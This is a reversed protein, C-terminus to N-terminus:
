IIISTQDHTFGKQADAAVGLYGIIVLKSLRHRLLSFIISPELRSYNLLHKEERSPNENRQRMWLSGM